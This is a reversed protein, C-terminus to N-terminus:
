RANSGVVEVDSTQLPGETERWFYIQFAYRRAETPLILLVFLNDPWQAMGMCPKEFFFKVKQSQTHKAHFSEGHQWSSGHMLPDGWMDRATVQM